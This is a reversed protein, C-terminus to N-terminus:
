ARRRRRALLGVAGVALAAMSAPEPTPTVETLAIDGVAYDGSAGTGLSLIVKDVDTLTIPASLSSYLISFDFPSSGAGIVGSVQSTTGGNGSVVELSYSLPQDNQLFHINFANAGVGSWDAHLYNDVYGGGSYDVGYLLTTSTQVGVQASDYLGPEPALTSPDIAMEATFGFSNVVTEFATTRHGGLMAGVQENYDTNVGAVTVTYAGTSFDDLTLDAHVLPVAVGFCAVCLAKKIM